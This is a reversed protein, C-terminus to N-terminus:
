LSRFKQVLERIRKANEALEAVSPPRKTRVAVLLQAHAAAWDLLGVRTEAILQRAVRERTAIEKLQAELPLYWANADVLLADVRKLESTAIDTVNGGGRVVSDVQKMLEDRRSVLQKRYSLRSQTDSELKLTDTQAQAALQVLADLDKLDAGVKTAVVDIAPQVDALAKELSKAARAKAIQGYVFTATQIAIEGGTGAGPMAINAANALQGGADAVAKAADAGSQGADVIAQLSNAYAVLATFFRDRETWAAALNQAQTKANPLDTRGLEAVTAAGASAVAGRLSVTAETFPAVDPSSACGSLAIVFVLGLLAGM